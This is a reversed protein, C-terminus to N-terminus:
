GWWAVRQPSTWRRSADLLPTWDARCTHSIRSSTLRLALFIFRATSAVGAAPVAGSLANQKRRTWQLIDRNRRPVKVEQRGFRDEKRSQRLRRMLHTRPGAM